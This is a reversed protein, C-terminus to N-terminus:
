VSLSWLVLRSPPILSRLHRRPSVFHRVLHSAPSHGTSPPPPYSQELALRYQPWHSRYQRKTLPVPPATRLLKHRRRAPTISPPIHKKLLCVRIYFPPRPKCPQCLVVASPPLRIWCCSSPAPGLHQEEAEKARRFIPLSPQATLESLGLRGPFHRPTQNQYFLRLLPPRCLHRVPVSVIAGLALSQAHGSFTSLSTPRLIRTTSPLHQHHVTPIQHEPKNIDLYVSPPQTHRSSLYLGGIPVPVPSTFHGLSSM